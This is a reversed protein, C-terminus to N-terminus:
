SDLIITRLIKSSLNERNLNQILKGKKLVFVEKCLSSVLDLNHSAIIITSKDKLKLLEDVFSSINKPDMGSFPEDLLILKPKILLIRLFDVKKRMGTSLEKVPRELWNEVGFDKAKSLIYEQLDNIMLNKGLDYLKSWFLLNEYGTLEDYLFSHYSFLVMNSRINETNKKIDKGFIEIFGTTPSIITGLVNLLTSKGAGNSGVLGSITNKEIELSINRLAWLFRYRKGMNYIKISKNTQENLVITKTINNM